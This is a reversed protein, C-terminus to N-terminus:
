GKAALQVLLDQTTAHAAALEAELKEYSAGGLEKVRAAAAEKAEQAEAIAVVAAAGIPGLAEELVATIVDNPQPAKILRPPLSKGEGLPVGNDFVVEREEIQQITVRPKDEIAFAITIYAPITKKKLSM